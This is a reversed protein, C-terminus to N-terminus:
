GAIRDILAQAAMALHRDPEDAPILIRKGARIHRVAGTALMERALSESIGMRAAFQRVAMFLPGANQTTENRSTRM